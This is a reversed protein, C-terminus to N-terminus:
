KEYWVAEWACSAPAFLLRGVTLVVSAVYYFYEGCSLSNLEQLIKCKWLLSWSVLWAADHTLRGHWHSANKTGIVAVWLWERLHRERSTESFQSRFSSCQGYRSSLDEVDLLCSRLVITSASLLNGGFTFSDTPQNAVKDVEGAKADRELGSVNTELM